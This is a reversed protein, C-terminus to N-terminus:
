ESAVECAYRMNLEMLKESCSDCLFKGHWHSTTDVYETTKCFHCEAKSTM